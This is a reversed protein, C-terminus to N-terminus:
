EANEACLIHIRGSFHVTDPTKGKRLYNTLILLPEYGQQIFDQPITFDVLGERLLRRIGDNIDHCVISIQSKKGAVRVAEACGSVSLNAMYVGRLDPYSSIAESVVSVTTEYDNFTEAMTVREGSYGLEKLREQFGTLRQCHGDFKLNGVTALIRDSPRVCKTMLEAAVRGTRRIDQGVFCLRRSDPLDSNFTVCPVGRESLESVYRGISRDNLACVALGEAGHALLDEMREIAERPLDTECSSVSVRVAAAELEERGKEIGLLVEKRFQTERENPLLVGLHLPKFTEALKQRHVEQPALYGTEEIASLIKARVDPRVHPRGNLVRDVTGRSVGAIQAIEEITTRKGM